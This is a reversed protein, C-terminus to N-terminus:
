FSGGDIISTTTLIDHNTIFQAPTQWRLFGDATTEVALKSAIATTTDAVMNFFNSYIYGSANRSVLANATFAEAASPNYGDVTDADLGSGSGDVTVLKALVDAATYSASDLKTDIESQTLTSIPKNLDSTNDVNDLGVDAKELSVAGTKGAVSSVPATANTFKAFTLNDVGLNANGTVSNLTWGTDANTTGEEVFVYMGGSVENSPTNDADLSRAWAGGDVVYIGNQTADTQEKVLIRDGVTTVVSDITLTGTLNAINTNTALRVSGKTDLGTLASDVYAKNVAHNDLTPNGSLTLAGTLTDGTINVYDTDHNHSSFSSSISLIEADLDAYSDTTITGNFDIIPATMAITAVANLQIQSATGTTSLTINGNAAANAMNIHKSVLTNNVNMEIGGAGNINVENQTSTLTLIANDSTLGLTGIGSTSLVMSQNPDTAFTMTDSVDEIVKKGNVYLSSAGLFLEDAYINRYRQTTSGLDRVSVNGTAGTMEPLLTGALAVSGDKLLVDAQASKLDLQAQIDSTVDNLYNVKDFTVTIGDLLTNQTTTLHLDSDATHVTVDGGTGIKTWSGSIYAYYGPSNDTQYFIEGDSPTLNGREVLTGSAVTLNSIDAGEILTIDDFLM